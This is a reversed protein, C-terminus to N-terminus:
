NMARLYTASIWLTRYRKADRTAGVEAGIFDDTLFQDRPKM